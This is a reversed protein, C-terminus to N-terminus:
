LRSAGSRLRRTVNKAAIRDSLAALHAKYGAGYPTPVGSSNLLYPGDCPGDNYTWALYSVDHADAWSMYTDIFKATCDTEGLEGTVFPVKRLLGLAVWKNWAVPVGAGNFNYVHVSIALQHLPDHPMMTSFGKPDAAFDTGGVMVVNTAGTARMDSILQNYGALKAGHAVCGGEILCSFPLRRPENFLDFVVGQHGKFTAAVSSWFAPSHSEDAMIEGGTALETGPAAWHLDLIVALGDATLENVYTVVASKYPAGGFQPHPLNVGLWCDENLPVRVANIDWRKMAAIVSQAKPASPIGFGQGAVCASEAGAQDVGILRIARGSGDVLHNGSVRVVPPGSFGISVSPPTAQIAASAPSPEIPELALQVVALALLAVGVRLAQTRRSSSRPAPSM